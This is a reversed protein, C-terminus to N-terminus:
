NCSNFSDLQQGQTSHLYCPVQQDKAATYGMDTIEM